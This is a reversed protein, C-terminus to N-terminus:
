LTECLNHHTNIGMTAHRGIYITCRHTFPSVWRIAHPPQFDRTATMGANKINYGGHRFTFGQAASVPLPAGGNGSSAAPAATFVAPTVSGQSVGCNLVKARTQLILCRFGPRRASAGRNCSGRPWGHGGNAANKAHSSGSCCFIGAIYNLNQSVRRWQRPKGWKSCSDTTTCSSPTAPTTPSSWGPVAHTPTM